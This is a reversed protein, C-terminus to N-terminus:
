ACALVILSSDFLCISCVESRAANHGYVSLCSGYEEDEPKAFSILHRPHVIKVSQVFLAVTGGLGGM